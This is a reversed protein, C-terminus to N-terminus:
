FDNKNQQCSTQLNIGCLHTKLLSRLTQPQSYLEDPVHPGSWVVLSPLRTSVICSWWLLRMFHHGYRIGAPSGHKVMQYKEEKVILRSCRILLGTKKESLSKGSMSLVHIQRDNWWTKFFGTSLVALYSVTISSAQWTTCKLRWLGSWFSCFRRSEYM